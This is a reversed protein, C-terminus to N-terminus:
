KEIRTVQTSSLIVISHPSITYQHNKDRRWVPEVSALSCVDTCCFPLLFVQFCPLSYIYSCGVMHTNTIDILISLGKM